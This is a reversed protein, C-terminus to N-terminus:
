RFVLIFRKKKKCIKFVRQQSYIEFIRPFFDANRPNLFSFRFEFIEFIIIIRTCELKRRKRVM